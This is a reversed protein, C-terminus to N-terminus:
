AFFSNYIFFLRSEFKNAKRPFQKAPFLFSAIGFLASLCIRWLRFYLSKAQSHGDRRLRLVRGLISPACYYAFKGSDRKRELNPM